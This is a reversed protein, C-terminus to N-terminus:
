PTGGLAMRLELLFRHGLFSLLAVAGALLACSALRDAVGPEAMAARVLGGFGSAVGRAAPDQDGRVCVFLAAVSLAPVASVLWPVADIAALRACLGRLPAGALATLGAGPRFLLSRLAGAPLAAAFAAVFLAASVGSGLSRTRDYFSAPDLMPWLPLVFAAACAIRAGRHRVVGACAAALLALALGALLYSLAGAVGRAATRFRSRDSVTAAWADRLPVFGAAARSPEAVRWAPRQEWMQAPVAAGALSRDALVGLVGLDFDLYASASTQTLEAGSSREFSSLAVCLALLAAFGMACAGLWRLAAAALRSAFASRALARGEGATM